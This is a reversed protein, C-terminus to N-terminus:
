PSKKRVRKTKFEKKLTAQCFYGTSVAPAKGVDFFLMIM